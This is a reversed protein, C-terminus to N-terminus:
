STRFSPLSFSSSEVMESDTGVVDITPSESCRSDDVTVKADCSDYGSSHSASDESKEGDTSINRQSSSITPDLPEQKVYMPPARSRELYQIAKRDIGPYTALKSVATKYGDDFRDNAAMDHLDFENKIHLARQLSRVYKITMELVVAKELPRSTQTRMEAPLLDKLSSISSNIRDRRKKEILRHPMRTEESLGKKRDIDSM